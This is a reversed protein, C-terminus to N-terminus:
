EPATVSDTDKRLEKERAGEDKKGGAQELLPFLTLIRDAAKSRRVLM